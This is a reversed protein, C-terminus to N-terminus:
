KGRWQSFLDSSFQDVSLVVVLKPAGDPVQAQAPMASFLAAAAFWRAFRM